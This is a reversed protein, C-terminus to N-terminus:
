NFSTVMQARRDPCGRRGSRLHIPYSGAPHRIPHVILPQIGLVDLADLYLPALRCIRPEKIVILPAEGYGSAIEITLRKSFDYAADSRFWSLPIPRPDHWTRGLVGLIEENLALLQRPEWHGLPNGRGAGLLEEPLAAGLVKLLNTLLSTGSRGVGLILIAARNRSRSNPPSGDAISNM